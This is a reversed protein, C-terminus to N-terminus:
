RHKRFRRGFYRVIRDWGEKPNTVLFFARFLSKQFLTYSPQYSRLVRPLVQIKASRLRLGPHWELRCGGDLFVTGDYGFFVYNPEEDRMVDLSNDPIGFLDYYIRDVFLLNWKTVAILEYGKKKALEVLSAASTGQQCQPSAPQAFKVANAITFNYEILTLKPRYEAVANWIHYDNGDVDVSLFDFNHPIPQQRLLSDLGDSGSWGVLANLFVARQKHPYYACLETYKEPDCEILVASYGLEDVLHFTNSLHRGDWAGFEVCWGDREPLVSLAKEVIGDEGGQSTVNRAHESLWRSARKLEALTSFQRAQAPPTDVNIKAQQMTQIREGSNV